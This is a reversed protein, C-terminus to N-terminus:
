LGPFQYTAELLQELTLIPVGDRSVLRQGPRYEYMFRLRRNITRFYTRGGFDMPPVRAWQGGSPDSFVPCRVTHEPRGYGYDYPWIDGTRTLTQVEKPVPVLHRQGWPDVWEGDVTSLVVVVSREM